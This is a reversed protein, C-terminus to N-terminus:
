KIIRAMSNENILIYDKYLQLGNPFYLHDLLLTLKDTKENYSFLRGRPQAELHEEVAENIDRLDSSDVFYIMDGNIDLDNTMKMPKGIRPDNASLLKKKSGSALDVRYLGYYADCVYM